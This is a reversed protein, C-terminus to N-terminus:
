VDRVQERPYQRQLGTQRIFDRMEAQLDRVAMQEETNDLGAATVAASVRKAARIEREIKRQIQTADYYSIEQGQYTVTKNAYDTLDAEQYANESLGKFFPFFSHRCNHTIINNAFYWGGDTELNYVHIFSAETTNRQIDIINDSQVTVGNWQFVDGIFVPTRDFGNDIAEFAIPNIAPSVPPGVDSSFIFNLRGVQQSHIFRSHPFILNSFLSAYGLTCDSLIKLFKAYWTGIATRFRHFFSNLSHRIRFDKFKSFRGMVGNPAHLSGTGIKCLSGLSLLFGPLEVPFTFFVKIFKENVSPEVGNWLLSDPYVVDVEHDSIDGHFDGTSVPLSRIEGGVLLADFVEQIIPQRENINPRKGRHGHLGSRSFVNDGKTLLGAAVWGKETLIPHNPTVTLEHGRATRIVILEGSYKRRYGASIGPGSVKTDEVICNIGSLGTITGYGTIEYFNPYDANKPDKGLTFVRGQWLEHNEPVDGKNRAGIHASTQILDVGMDEARALTMDGVTQNVGTLVARRVAVGVKDRHGSEFYIVNLGKEAVDKVAEKIATNYDMTGTSIQMYALDAADIFADQGSIAMTQTINQLLGETRRLGIVLADMVNPANNLPLPDMGALRYLRDDFRFATVGAQEFIRRLVDESQGTLEALRQIIDQYLLGAENLRQVQWAASTYDLEALRRAIDELVSTHFREYLALIPIPLVDLQDATLM